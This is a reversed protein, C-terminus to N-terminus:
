LANPTAQATARHPHNYSRRTACYTAPLFDNSYGGYIEVPKKIEIYGKNRVGYYNGEAVYIKDGPQAQEVARDINKLPADKSGPNSNKGNAKSVYIVGAMAQTAISIALLCSLLIRKM